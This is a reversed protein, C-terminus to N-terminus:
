NAWMTVQERAPLLSIVLHGQTIEVEIKVQKNTAEVAMFAQRVATEAAALKRAADEPTIHELDSEEVAYVRRLPIDRSVAGDVAWLAASIAARSGDIGVVISPPTASENMQPSAPNTMVPGKDDGNDAHHPSVSVRIEV